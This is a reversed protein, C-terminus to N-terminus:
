NTGFEVIGLDWENFYRHYPFDYEQKINISKQMNQLHCPRLIGLKIKSNDETIVYLDVEIPEKFYGRPVNINM